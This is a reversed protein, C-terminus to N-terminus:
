ANLLRFISQFEELSNVIIRDNFGENVDVWRILANDGKFDFTPDLEVRLGMYDWLQIGIMPKLYDFLSQTNNPSWQPNKIQVKM